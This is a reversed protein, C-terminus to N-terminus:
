KFRKGCDLCIVSWPYSQLNKHQCELLPTTAADVADRIFDSMTKGAVEAATKWREKTEPHVRILVQATAPAGPETDLSPSVALSTHEMVAAVAIELNDQNM